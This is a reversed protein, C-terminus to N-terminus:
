PLPFFPGQHQTIQPSSPHTSNLYSSLEIIFYAEPLIIIEGRNEEYICKLKREKKWRSGRRPPPPREGYRRWWCPSGSYRRRQCRRREPRLSRRGRSHTLLVVPAVLPWFRFQPWAASGRTTPLVVLAVLPWFRFQPWAASGRARTHSTKGTRSRCCPDPCPWGRRIMM